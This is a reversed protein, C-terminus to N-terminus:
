LPPLDTGEAAAAQQQAAATGKAGGEATSAAREAGTAQFIFLSALHVVIYCLPSFCQSVLNVIILYM